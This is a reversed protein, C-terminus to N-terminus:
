TIRPVELRTNWSAVERALAMAPVAMSPEAVGDTPTHLAGTWQDATGELVGYVEAGRLVRSELGHAKAHATWAIRKALAAGDKCLYMTGIQRFGTEAGIRANMGRWLKLSELMLPLERPDRGMARCWGWNRSSQEGAIQGKECLVVKQGEEALFMATAVGIVGGGLAVIFSKRELRKMALQDYCDAVVKFSKATEGAPVTGGLPPTEVGSDRKAKAAPVSMPEADARRDGEMCDRDTFMAALDGMSGIKSLGALDRNAGGGM